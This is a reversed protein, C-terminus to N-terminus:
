NEFTRKLINNKVLVNDQYELDQVLEGDGDWKQFVGHKKGKHYHECYSMRGHLYWGRVTGHMEGNQYNHEWHFTDDAYMSHCTGHKKDSKYYTLFSIKGHSYYIIEKGHKYGNPLSTSVIQPGEKIKILKREAAKNFRKSVQALRCWTVSDEVHQFILEALVEEGIQSM